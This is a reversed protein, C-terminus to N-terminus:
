WEGDFWNIDGDEQESDFSREKALGFSVEDDSKNMTESPSAPTLMAEQEVYFIEMFPSRYEKKM